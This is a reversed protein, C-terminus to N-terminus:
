PRAALGPRVAVDIKDYDEVIVRGRILQGQPGAPFRPTTIITGHIHDRDPVGNVAAPRFDGAGQGIFRFDVPDSHILSRVHPFDRSGHGEVLYCALTFPSAGFGILAAQDGLETRALRIAPFLYPTAEEAELVRLQGVQAATRIPDEVVPGVSEQIEFPVGMGELPLMIDAFLVAADVGLLGVPMCTVEAALEPNRVLEMFSLKQRLARYGPLSRGAQRMFWIPTADTPEHRTAALLRLAPAM